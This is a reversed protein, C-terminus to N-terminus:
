DVPTASADLSDPQSSGAPSPMEPMAPMVPMERTPMPVAGSSSEKPPSPPSAPLEPLLDPDFGAKKDLARNPTNSLRFDQKRQQHAVADLAPAVDWMVSEDPLQSVGPFADLAQDFTYDIVQQADEGV